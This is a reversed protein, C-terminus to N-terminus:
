ITDFSFSFDYKDVNQVEFIIPFIFWESFIGVNIGKVKSSTLGQFSVEHFGIFDIDSIFVQRVNFNDANREFMVVKM